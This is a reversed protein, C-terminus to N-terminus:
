LNYIASYVRQVLEATPHKRLDVIVQSLAKPMQDLRPMSAGYGKPLLLPALAGALGIDALTMRSGFLFHKGDRVREDIRNVESQIHQLADDARASNLRLLM